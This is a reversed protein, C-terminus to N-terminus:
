FCTIEINSIYPFPLFYCRWLRAFLIASVRFRIQLKRLPQFIASKMNVQCGDNYPLIKQSIMRRRRATSYCKHCYVQYTNWFFLSCLESISFFEFIRVCILLTKKLTSCKQRFMKNQIKKYISVMHYTLVKLSFFAPRM